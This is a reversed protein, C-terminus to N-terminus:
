AEWGEEKVNKAPQNDSHGFNSLLVTERLNERHSCSGTVQVSASM